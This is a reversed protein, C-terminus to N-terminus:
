NAIHHKMQGIQFTVLQFEVYWNKKVMGQSFNQQPSLFILRSLVQHLKYSIKYLQMVNCVLLKTVDYHYPNVKLRGAYLFCGYLDM